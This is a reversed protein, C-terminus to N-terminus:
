HLEELEAEPPVAPKASGAQKRAARREAGRLPNPHPQYRTVFTAATGTTEVYLTERRRPPTDPTSGHWIRFDGPVEVTLHLLVKDYAVDFEARDHYSAVRAGRWYECPEPRNEQFSADFQFNEPLKVKGQLQIALGLKRPRDGSAAITATDVLTPGEFALRRLAQADSRYHPQAVRVAIPSFELLEGRQPPEEGEGDILPVNHNFGRTYYGKYLPSGYGVVGTDHSIDVDLFGLSFNLAESQSHSRTLQGYHLFMQWGAHILLAMRTAEMNQTRVPPLAFPRPTHPPPDLITNWDRRHEAEELGLTTPFVRYTEAYLDRSPATPLGANDAPNPLLGTAFRLYLPSLMLNEAANMERALEGARDYVGATTFLTLLARVVFGNYGFSQEHWLFDGTIGKAVQQRVGYPGDLAEKWMAEDGFLLGVQASACRHWTAINHIDHHTRNLVEVEPEFFEHRWRERRDPAVYDGLQRVVEVFNVLNSAETLSQWFLRAGQEPKQPEWRLFNDAYFDMQGAAWEAYRPEGTLRYLRAARVMTDVNHGRFTVVWWAFLKPTIKIEPDSPSALFPVEEGPIKDTWIVRSGDKPSVGDHSWGAIWAVRDHHRASWDDVSVREKKLWEAWAPDTAVRQRAGAWDERAARWPQGADDYVKLESFVKEPDPRATEAALADRAVLLVAFSFFPLLRRMALSVVM